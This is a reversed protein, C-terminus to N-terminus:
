RARKELIRRVLALDAPKDVHLLKFVAADAEETGGALEAAYSVRSLSEM